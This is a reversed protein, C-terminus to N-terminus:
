KSAARIGSDGAPTPYFPIKLFVSGGYINTDASASYFANVGAKVSARNLINLGASVTWFTTSENFFITDAATAAQVPIDFTHSFGFEHDIGVGIYPMWAFGASPLVAVLRARGGLDTYSLQETGFVFGSTDAYGNNWLKQYAVHGSTDLFVSYGGYRPAPPAKTPMASPSVGTTNILPFLYGAAIGLSYGQGDTSGTGGDFNNTIGSHTWDYSAIGNAYFSDKTYSASVAVTWTDDRTSAANSVGPTLASTGYNTNMQQYDLRAGFLLHQNGNLGILPTGDATFTFGGGGGLSNFGPALSGPAVAGASDSVRYGSNHIGFMDASGYPGGVGDSSYMSFNVPGGLHSPGTSYASTGTAYGAEGMYLLADMGAQDDYDLPLFGYMPLWIFRDGQGSIDPIGPAFNAGGLGCIPISNASCVPPMTGTVFGGDMHCESVTVCALAAAPLALLFAGIAVLGLLFKYRKAGDGRNARNSRFNFALGLALSLALMRAISNGKRSQM